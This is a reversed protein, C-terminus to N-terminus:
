KEPTNILISNNKLMTYLHATNFYVDALENLLAAIAMKQATQAWKNQPNLTEYLIGCYVHFLPLYMVSCPTAKCLEFTFETKSRPRKMKPLEEFITALAENQMFPRDPNCVFVNTENGITAYNAATM